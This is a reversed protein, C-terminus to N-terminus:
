DEEGESPADDWCGDLWRRLVATLDDGIPHHTARVGVASTFTAIIEPGEAVLAVKATGDDYNVVLPGGDPPIVAGWHRGPRGFLEYGLKTLQYLTFRTETAPM